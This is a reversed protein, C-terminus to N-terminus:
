LIKIYENFAKEAANCRKIDDSPWSFSCKPLCDDGVECFGNVIDVCEYAHSTENPHPCQHHNCKGNREKAPCGM